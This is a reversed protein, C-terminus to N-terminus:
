IAKSLASKDVRYRSYLYFLLGKDRFAVDISSGNVVNKARTVVIDQGITACESARKGALVDM